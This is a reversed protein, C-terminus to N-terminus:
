SAGPFATHAKLDPPQPLEEEESSDQSKKATTTPLEPSTVEGNGNAKATPQPSLPQPSPSRSVSTAYGTSSPAPSSGNSTTSSPQPSSAGDNAPGIFQGHKWDHTSTSIDDVPSRSRSRSRASTRRGSGSLRRASASTTFPTSSSPISPSFKVAHPPPTPATITTASLSHSHSYTAPTPTDPGVPPRGADLEAALSTHMPMRLHNMSTIAPPMNPPFIDPPAPVSMNIGNYPHHPHSQYQSLLSSHSGPGPYLVNPRPSRPVTTQYFVTSSEAFSPHEMPSEPSPPLPVSVGLPTNSAPWSPGRPPRPSDGISRKSTETRSSSPISEHFPRSSTIPSTDGLRQYRVRGSSYQGAPSAQSPGAGTDRVHWSPRRHGGPGPATTGETYSRVSTVGDSEAADSRNDEDTLFESNSSSYSTERAETSSTALELGMGLQSDFLSHDASPAEAPPPSTWKSRKPAMHEPVNEPPPPRISVRPPSQRPGPEFFRTPPSLRETAPAGKPRMSQSGVTYPTQPPLSMRPAVYPPASVLDEDKREECLEALAIIAREPRAALVRSARMFEGRITYLGDKTVCRAVNYDIEFPDEICLRNRERSDNYRGGSLDNQWGKSEKKLLGARISAVGTNYSFDRSYYRFFDILLEAVTETNDSHWRQRLLDIDDFFWVNYGNLHTDEKSIPRLPPMQQLNPLVPPNKVHVLFYIVLLVYGYSSLTGKYPSNIKRRKSWVKLFLVMTRVRTPDVMAYCMLLRTNELALRNEFGIDCAIGLPLGPSPDLSLKVIPIRAHPLPKVHFKTERELLDGLMTVLDTAALREKSDILCCLDMDSNRLSFGNATSGFSLLRSDPEITRILRELLKRVDEKVAMEEQTPLLQIVFDFLCQSLDAVFRMKSAHKRQMPPTTPAHVDRYHQHIAQPSMTQTFSM